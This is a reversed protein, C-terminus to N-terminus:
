ELLEVEQFDLILGTTFLIDEPTGPGLKLFFNEFNSCQCNSVAM